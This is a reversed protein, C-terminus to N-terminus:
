QVQVNAENMTAWFRAKSGTGNAHHLAVNTNHLMGFERFAFLCWDVFIQINEQKVFGGLKEFWQPHCYHYLTVFPELKHRKCCDLIDHFRAVADRDITSATPMVRSWELSFRFANSGPPAHHVLAGVIYCSHMGLQAALEIHQEYNNWFDSSVGIRQGQTITPLLYCFKRAQQEFAGWNCNPDGSNQFTSIATGVFFKLNDAVRPQQPEAALGASMTSSVEAILVSCEHKHAEKNLRGAIKM